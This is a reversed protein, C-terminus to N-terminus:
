GANEESYKSNKLILSPLKELASRGNARHLNDASDANV